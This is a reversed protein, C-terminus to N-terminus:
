NRKKVGPHLTSPPEEDDESDSRVDGQVGTKGLSNKIVRLIMFFWLCHIPLLATLLAILTNEVPTKDWVGGPCTKNGVCVGQWAAWIAMPYYYLRSAAFCIACCAFSVDPLVPVKIYHTCKALHLFPDFANHLLYVVVGIRMYGTTYSLMLLGFTVIHHFFMEWFDKKKKRSILRLFGSVVWSTEMIYLYKTEAVVHYPALGKITQVRGDSMVDKWGDPWLWENQRFIVFGFSLSISYYCLELFSAAFRTAKGGKLGLSKGLAAGATEVVMCSLHMGATITVLLLLFNSVDEAPGIPQAKKYDAAAIKGQAVGLTHAVLEVVNMRLAAQPPM